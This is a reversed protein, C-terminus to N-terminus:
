INKDYLLPTAIVVGKFLKEWFDTVEVWWIKRIFFQDTLALFSYLDSM